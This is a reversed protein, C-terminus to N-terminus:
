VIWKTQQFHNMADSREEETQALKKPPNKKQFSEMGLRIQLKSDRADNYEKLGTIKIDGSCKADHKHGNYYWTGTFGEENSHGEYVLLDYSGMQGAKNRDDYLKEFCVSM